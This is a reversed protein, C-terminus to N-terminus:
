THVPIINYRGKDLKKSCFEVQACCDVVHHIFSLTQDSHQTLNVLNKLPIGKSGGRALILGAVHLNTEPMGHTWVVVVFGAVVIAFGVDVGVVAEVVTAAGCVCVTVAGETVVVPVVVVAAAVM